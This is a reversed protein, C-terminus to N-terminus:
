WYYELKSKVEIMPEYSEDRVFKLIERESARRYERQHLNLWWWPGRPNWGYGSKSDAHVRWYEKDRERKTMPRYAQQYGGCGNHSWLVIDYETYEGHVRRFKRDWSTGQTEEYNKRRFTRSM